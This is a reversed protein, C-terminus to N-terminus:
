INKIPNIRESYRYVIMVFSDISVFWALKDTGEMVEKREM